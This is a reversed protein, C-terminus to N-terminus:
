KKMIKLNGLRETHLLVGESKRYIVLEIGGTLAVVAIGKVILMFWSDAVIFSTVYGVGFCVILTVIISKCIGLFYIRSSRGFYQKFLLKPEYWFYTCLRSISTAFIIGSLGILKGLVISFVINLGATFLMVFKTKQYLGTAERFVWIPLLCISFYFNVVIAYVVLNDLKYDKGLWVNIFDQQLLLVSTVFFTSLVVSVSHMIKFIQYREEKGEKVILNGLSATLSYFITNVFTTLKSVIVTYNSYYGVYSTGILVSILTNDTANILVSSIKYLFM